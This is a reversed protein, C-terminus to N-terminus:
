PAPTDRADIQTVRELRIAVPDADYPLGANSARAPLATDAVLTRTLRQEIAQCALRGEVSSCL